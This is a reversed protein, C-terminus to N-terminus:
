RRDAAGDADESPLVGAAAADSSAADLERDIAVAKKDLQQRASSYREDFSPKSCGALAAVMVLALTRIM